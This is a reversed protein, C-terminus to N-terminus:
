GGSTEEMPATSPASVEAQRSGPKVLLDVDLEACGEVMVDEFHTDGDEGTYIRTSKM